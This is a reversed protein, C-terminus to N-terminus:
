ILKSKKSLKWLFYLNDNRIEAPAKTIDPISKVTSAAELLGYSILFPRIESPVYNGYLGFVLASASLAVKSLSRLIASARIKSIREDLRLVKPQIIDSYIQKAIKPSLQHGQAIYENILNNITERYSIFADYENARIKLLSSLSINSFIPMEFMLQRSLVENYKLFNNEETTAQLLSIDLTRDTLYKLNSKYCYFKLCSLDRAIAKLLARNVHGRLIESSSLQYEELSPKNAVKRLLIPPLETSTRVYCGHDFLDEDCTVHIEYLHADISSPISHITLKASTTDSYLKELKKIEEALKSTLAKQRENLETYCTKCVGIGTPLFKVVGNRILPEIANIIKISGSISNRLRYEQYWDEPIDFHDFWNFYSQIYVSDSYLTAFRSLRDVRRLRCKSSSCGTGYLGSMNSNALFHYDQLGLIIPPQSEAEISLGLDLALSILESLAMDYFVAKDVSSPNILKKSKIIEFLKDYAM